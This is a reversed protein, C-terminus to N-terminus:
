NSKLKILQLNVDVLARDYFEEFSKLSEKAKKVKDPNNINAEIQQLYHGPKTLGLNMFSSKMKHALTSARPYYERAVCNRLSNLDKPTEEIFVELLSIIFEKDGDFIEFLNKIDVSVSTNTNEETKVNGIVPKTKMGEDAVLWYLVEKLADEKLPKTLYFDIGAKIANKRAEPFVDASCAVIPVKNLSDKNSERILSIAELGNMVPMHMDMLILDYNAKADQYIAVAEQGNEAIDAQVDLGQLLQRIYFQNMKNDEAVLVRLGKLSLNQNKFDQEIDKLKKLHSIKFDLTFEFTSGKGLTSKAELKGKKLTILERTITLGLGSGNIKALEPEDVQYFSKFISELKDEAIGIGTDSVSFKIKVTETNKEIFQLKLSISGRKTFKIANGVLNTIIQNLRYQDGIIIDPIQDDIEAIFQVGKERAKIEFGTALNYVVERLNFDLSQLTLKGAEIKSFDLIDNVISLLNKASFSIGDLNKKITKQDKLNGNSLIESLGLIVNLPTRIEHSMNSLFTSKAEATREANIKAKLSDKRHSIDKILLTFTDAPESFNNSFSLECPMKESPATSIDLEVCTGIIESEVGKYLNSIDYKIDRSVASPLLSYISKQVLENKNLNFMISAKSNCDKIIGNADFLLYADLINELIYIKTTDIKVPEEIIKNEEKDLIPEKLKDFFLTTPSQNLLSTFLQPIIDSISTVAPTLKYYNFFEEKTTSYVSDVFDQGFIEGFEQNIKLSDDKIKRFASIQKILDTSVSEKLQTEIIKIWANTTNLDFDEDKFKKLIILLFLRSIIIEQNKGSHYLPLFAESETLDPFNIKIESRLNAETNIYRSDHYILYNELELYFHAIQLERIYTDESFEYGKIKSEILTLRAGSSGLDFLYKFFNAIPNESALAPKIKSARHNLLREIFSSM